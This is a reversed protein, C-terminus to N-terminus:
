DQRAGGGARFGGSSVICQPKSGTLISSETKRQCDRKVSM